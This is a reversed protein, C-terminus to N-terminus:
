GVPPKIRAALALWELFSEFFSPDPEAVIGGPPSIRANPPEYPPATDIAFASSATLLVFLALLAVSRRM